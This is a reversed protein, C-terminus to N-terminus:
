FSQGYLQEIINELGATRSRYYDRDENLIKYLDSVFSKSDNDDLYETVIVSLRDFRQQKDDLM